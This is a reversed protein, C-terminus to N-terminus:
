EDPLTQFGAWRKLTVFESKDGSSVRHKIEADGLLCAMSDRQVEADIIQGIPIVPLGLVMEFRPDCGVRRHDRSNM